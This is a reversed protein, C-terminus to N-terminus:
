ERNLSRPGSVFPSGREYFRLVRDQEKSLGIRTSAGPPAAPASPAALWLPGPACLDLGDHERGIGLATALRGPGRCLDRESAGPRRARMADQGALPGGARILVGAGVGAIEASVNLCYYNGYIFYVYAHGRELFLSRNRATQGRFSHGAADGPVYAETEVIRVAARAPPVESVVIAGILFKALAVTDIPLESRRLRRLRLKPQSPSRPTPGPARRSTV